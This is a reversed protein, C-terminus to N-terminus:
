INILSLDLNITIIMDMEEMTIIQHHDLNIIITAMTTTVTIIIINSNNTLITNNSINHHLGVKNTTITTTAIIRINIDVVVVIDVMILHNIDMPATAMIHFMGVPLLLCQYLAVAAIGNRDMVLTKSEELIFGM